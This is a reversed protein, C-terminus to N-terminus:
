ADEFLVSNFGIGPVEVLYVDTHWPSVATKEVTYTKGLTLYKRAMKQHGVYGSNPNAFVVKHGKKAYIDMPNM